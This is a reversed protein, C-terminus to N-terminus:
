SYLMYPTIDFIRFQKCHCFLVTHMSLHNDSDDFIETSKCIVDGDYYLLHSPYISLIITSSQTVLRPLQFILKVVTPILGPVKPKSTWHEELQAVVDLHNSHIINRFEM